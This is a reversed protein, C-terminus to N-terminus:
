PAGKAYAAARALRQENEYDRCTLSMKYVAHTERGNRVVLAGSLGEVKSRVFVARGKADDIDITGM